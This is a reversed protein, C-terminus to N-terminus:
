LLSAAILSSIGKVPLSTESALDPVLELHVAKVSLSVFISVYAKVIVLKCVSGQKIYVLGEYDVGVKEFIADPMMHKRSLQGMM